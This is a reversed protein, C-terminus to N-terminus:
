RRRPLRVRPRIGRAAARSRGPGAGPLLPGGCAQGPKAPMFYGRWPKGDFGGASKDADVVKKLEPTVCIRTLVNAARLVGQLPARVEHGLHALQASAHQARVVAEELKVLNTELM